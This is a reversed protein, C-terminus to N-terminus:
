SAAMLYLFAGALVGMVGQAVLAPVLSKTLWRSGALLLPTALSALVLPAAPELPAVVVVSVVVTGVVATGPGRWEEFLSYLFGRLFLEGALMTPLALLILLAFYATRAVGGEVRIGPLDSAPSPASMGIAILLGLLLATVVVIRYWPTTTLPVRRWWARGFVVLLAVAGVMTVPLGWTPSIRVLAAAALFAAAATAATLWDARRRATDTTTPQRM